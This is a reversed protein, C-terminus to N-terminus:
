IILRQDPGIVAAASLMALTMTCTPAGAFSVSFDTGSVLVPSVPTVGDAQFVRATVATPAADCMGGTAGDPLRDVITANWAATASTNHVDLTFTEPTALTMQAPGSKELTLTPEVITMPPTTGPFGPLQSADDEDIRNYTYDATNTFALGAVNTPTDELVVTIEITVQEGAPIDIGGTPDEIVLNTATGTNVPTWSGSGSIKAVSVFTLDAASATLDDTIRVDYIPYAYPTAPVTIRYRFPVGIAATAQLNEKLLADAAPVQILVRTPDEDGAVFPDAQGNVNPDDSIALPAGGSSLQSQNTVVTGDVLTTALTIDFQILLEGAGPLSLNRIDIV